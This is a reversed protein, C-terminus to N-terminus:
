FISFLWFYFRNWFFSRRLIVILKSFGAGTALGIAFAFGTTFTIGALFGTALILPFGGTFVALFGIFFIMALAGAFGIGFFFFIMALEVGALFGMFLIMGLAIAFGALAFIIGLFAPLGGGFFFRYFIYM